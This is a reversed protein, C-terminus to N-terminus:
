KEISIFRLGKITTAKNSFLVNLKVDNKRGIWTRLKPLFNPLKNIKHYLNKAIFLSDQYTYNVIPKQEGIKIRDYKLYGDNFSEKEVQVTDFVISDVTNVWLITDSYTVKPSFSGHSKFDMSIISELNRTKIGLQALKVSDEKHLKEYEKKTMIQETTEIVHLSDKTYYDRTQTFIITDKRKNEDIYHNMRSYFFGVSGTLFSIILALIITKRNKILFPQTLSM